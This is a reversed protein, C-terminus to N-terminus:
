SPEISQCRILTDASGWNITIESLKPEGLKPPVFSWQGQLRSSIDRNTGYFGDKYFIIETVHPKMGYPDISKNNIEHISGSKYHGWEMALDSSDLTSVQSSILYTNSSTLFLVFDRAFPQKAIWVGCLDDM